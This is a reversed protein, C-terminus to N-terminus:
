GRTFDLIEFEQRPLREILMEQSFPGAKDAVGVTTAHATAYEARIVYLLPKFDRAEANAIL